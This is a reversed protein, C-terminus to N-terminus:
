RRNRYLMCGGLDRRPEMREAVYTLIHYPRLSVLYAATALEPDLCVSAIRGDSLADVVNREGNRGFATVLPYDYPTPNAVGSALYLFGARTSLIFPHEGATALEALKTATRMYPRASNAVPVDQFHALNASVFRGSALDSVPEVAILGAGILLWVSGLAAVAVARPKALIPVLRRAGYVTGLLLIPVAVSLHVISARPYVGLAAAITFAIVVAARVRETRDGRWWAAGVVLLAIPLLLFLLQWYLFEVNLLTRPPLHRVIDLLNEGYSLGGQQLYTGKNTFGYDLFAAGGGSTLVPVLMLALPILFAVAARVISGPWANRNAWGGASTLVVAGIAAAAYVGLNQKSAFCLGAAIGALMLWRNAEKGDRLAADSWSVMASFCVLLWLTALLSYPSWLWPAMFIILSLPLFWAAGAGLDLQRAIRMALLLLVTFWVSWWALAFVMANGFVGTVPVTLYIALPTAGFFVDRYLVDGASVRNVVQLFWSKDLIYSGTGLDSLLTLGYSIAFLLAASAVRSLLLAFWGHSRAATLPNAAARIM